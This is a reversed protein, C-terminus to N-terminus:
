GESGKKRKSVNKVSYWKAYLPLYNDLFPCRYREGKEGGYTMSYTFSLDAPQPGFSGSHVDAMEERRYVFTRTILENNSVNRQHKVKKM